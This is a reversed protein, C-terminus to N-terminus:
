GASTTTMFLANALHDGWAEKLDLAVAYAMYDNLLAPTLHPDNMRNLRDLEVTGLFQKFGEIQDMRERGLPTVAQIAVGGVINVVVLSVLVWAFMPTSARAIQVAVFGPVALFIPLPVVTRAVNKASLLGRFVDRLARVVNTAIIVGLGLSFLLFWLTLFVADSHRGVIASIILAAGVSVATAPLSYKLNRKLYAGGIRKSLSGMMVSAVLSLNRGESPRFLFAREPSAAPALSQLQVLADFACSEEPPLEAPPRDALLTIRYGDGEPRLAIMKHAALHALAAAVTKRDCARTLLYRMEAPSMNGPPAYQPVVAGPKPDQGALLWVALYYAVLFSPLLLLKFDLTYVASPFLLVALAAFAMRGYIFIRLRM